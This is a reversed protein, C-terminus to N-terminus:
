GWSPRCTPYIYIYSVHTCMHTNICVHVCTCALCVTATMQQGINTLSICIYTWMRIYVFVQEPVTWNRAVKNVNEITCALGVTMKQGPPRKKVPTQSTLRNTRAGFRDALLTYTYVLRMYVYIHIYVYMYMHVHLAWPWKQPWKNVPTQLVWAYTHVVHTHIRISTRACKLQTCDQECNRHYM